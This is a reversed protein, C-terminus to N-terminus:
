RVPLFLFLFLFLIFCKKYTIHLPALAQTIFALTVMLSDHTRLPKIKPRGPHGVSSNPGLHFFAQYLNNRNFQTRERMRGFLVVYM